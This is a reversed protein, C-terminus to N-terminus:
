NSHKGGFWTVEAVAAREAHAATEYIGSTEAPEWFQDGDEETYREGAYGFFGDPRRFIVLEHLGDSSRFSSVAVLDERLKM